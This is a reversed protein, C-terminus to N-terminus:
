SGVTLGALWGSSQRDIMILMFAQEGALHPLVQESLMGIFNVKVIDLPSFTPGLGAYNFLSDFRGTL